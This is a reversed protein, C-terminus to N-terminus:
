FPPLESKIEDTEPDITQAEGDEMEVQMTQLVGALQEQIERIAAATAVDNIEDVHKFQLQGYSDGNRSDQVSIEIATKALFYRLNKQTRLGSAYADWNKVSMTPVQVIVPASWGDPLFLLNRKESCAKGGRGKWDTGFQNLPCSACDYTDPLPRRETALKIFQHPNRISALAQFEEASVENKVRGVVGGVSTCFPVKISKLPWTARAKIAGVVIGTLPAKVSDGASDVFNKQGGSAAKLRTPIFTYAEEDRFPSSDFLLDAETRKISHQTLVALATTM